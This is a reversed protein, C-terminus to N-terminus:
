SARGVGRAILVATALVVGQVLDDVYSPVQLMILGTSLVGMFLVGFYTYIPHFRGGPSASWGLFCAAYAPLLLGTGASPYYSGARATLLIGAIGACVAVLAFALLRTRRTRIGAIREAEENGGIAYIWRGFATFSMLLGVALVVLISILVVSPIFIWNGFAINVYGKTIGEYVTKDDMMAREVGLAITGAALTGILAPVRGYAVLLGIFSGWVLGVLLAVIIAEVAGADHSSMSFVAVAGGLSAVSGFSLDFEGAALVVSLGSAVVALIAANELLSWFTSTQLFSDPRLLGFVLIMLVFVVFVGYRLWSLSPTMSTRLRQAPKTESSVTSM